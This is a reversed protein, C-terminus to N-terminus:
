KIMQLYAAAYRKGLERYSASDFHVKDGKHHLGAATVFATHPVQQPLERQAQDVLAKSPSWPADDFKGM